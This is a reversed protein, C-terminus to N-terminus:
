KREYSQVKKKLLVIPLMTLKYFGKHHWLNILKTHSPPQLAKLSVMRNRTLLEHPGSVVLVDQFSRDPQLLKEKFFDQTACYIYTLKLHICTHTDTRTHTNPLSLHSCSLQKPPFHRCQQPLFVTLLFRLCGECHQVRVETDKRM